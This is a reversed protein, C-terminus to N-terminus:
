PGEEEGELIDLPGPAPYAAIRLGSACAELLVLGFTDTTSPFVFLDAAAYSRALAEGTKSGLFHVQPYRAQLVPLDPGEGIVVLSGTTQLNLFDPLNKEVAVRGVYLLIPEPLKEYVELEKGYPHFLSMDVGRSWLGLRQFGRARLSREISLTAVMVARSPAHFSRLVAYAIKEILGSFLRSVRAALYEPFRTHYATTFARGRRLCVRRAAWGLCGETSIHILDPVFTEFIAEVRRDAFFELKIEPYFPLAVTFFRSTDPTVMRVQHGLRTLERTLAELSRVVGNIQPPAADSIILIKMDWGLFLGVFLRYCLISNSLILSLRSIEKKM